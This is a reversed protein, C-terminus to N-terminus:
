MTLELNQSRVLTKELLREKQVKLKATQQNVMKQAYYDLKPTNRESLNKYLGVVNSLAQPYYPALQPKEKKLKRAYDSESVVRAGDDKDGKLVARIYVELDLRQASLDDGIDQRVQLALKNYETRYHIKKDLDSSIANEQAQHYASAGKQSILDDLGKGDEPNWKLVKVKCGKAELLEIGRVMDRRVNIITKIKTDQDYALRFERKKDAFIAVEPNLERHVLKNKDDDTSRYIHNVGTLGITVEGQSISSLTKKFGETITIPIQPYQKVVYWFGSNREDPTPNIGHKLYIKNAIADSVEPLFPVRKASAPNEYKRYKPTGGEASKQSDIRPNDPKFCGWLTHDPK